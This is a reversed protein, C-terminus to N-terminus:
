SPKLVIKGRKVWFHRLPLYRQLAGGRNQYNLIKARTTDLLWEIRTLWVDGTEWVAVGLIKIGKSRMQIVTDVDYAWAAKGDRIAESISAAGHRFIEAQKRYALYIQRGDDFTFIGGYLRRGKKVEKVVFPKGKTKIPCRM